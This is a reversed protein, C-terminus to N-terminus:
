VQWEVDTTGGWATSIFSIESINKSFYKWESERQIENNPENVMINLIEHQTGSPKELFIVKVRTNKARYFFGFHPYFM